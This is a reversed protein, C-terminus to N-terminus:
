KQLLTDALTGSIRQATTDLKRLQENPLSHLFTESTSISEGTQVVTNGSFMLFKDIVREGFLEGFGNANLAENITRADDTFGRDSLARFFLPMRDISRKEPIGLGNAALEDFMTWGDPKLFWVLKTIASALEGKTHKEKSAHKAVEACRTARDNLPGPWNKAEDNLRIALWDAHDDRGAIKKGNADKTSLIGRNVYYEKAIRRVSAADIGDPPMRKLQIGDFSRWTRYHEVVAWKLLERRRVKDLDDITAM